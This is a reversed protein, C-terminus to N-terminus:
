MYLDEDSIYGKKNERCPCLPSRLFRTNGSYNMFPEIVTDYHSQYIDDRIWYTKLPDDKVHFSTFGHIANEFDYGAERNGLNCDFVDMFKSMFENEDMYNSLDRQFEYKMCLPKDTDFYFVIRILNYLGEFRTTYEIDWAFAQKLKKVDDDTIRDIYIAEGAYPEDYVHIKENLQIYTKVSENIDVGIITQYVQKLTEKWLIERVIFIDKEGSYEKEAIEIRKIFSEYIDNPIFCHYSSKYYYKWGSPVREWDYYYFDGNEIKKKDAMTEFFPIIRDFRDDRLEHVNIYYVGGDKTWMTIHPEIDIFGSHSIFYEYYIVNNWFDTPLNHYETKKVIFSM